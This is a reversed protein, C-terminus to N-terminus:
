SLFVLVSDRYDGRKAGPLRQRLHYGSKTEVPGHNQQLFENPPLPLRTALVLESGFALGVVTLRRCGPGILEDGGDHSSISFHQFHQFAVLQPLHQLRSHVPNGVSAGVDELLVGDERMFGLRRLRPQEVVDKVVPPQVQPRGGLWVAGRVGRGPVEEAAHDLGIGILM